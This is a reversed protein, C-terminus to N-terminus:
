RQCTEPLFSLGELHLRNWSSITKECMMDHLIPHLGTFLMHLGNSIEWFRVGISQDSPEYSHHPIKPAEDHVEGLQISWWVVM